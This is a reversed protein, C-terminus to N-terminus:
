LWPEPTEHFVFMQHSQRSECRFEIDNEDRLRIKWQFWAESLEKLEQMWNM